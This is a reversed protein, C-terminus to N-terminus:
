LLIWFFDFLDERFIRGFAFTRRHHRQKEKGLALFLLTGILVTIALALLPSAIAMFRSAEPRAELKLM